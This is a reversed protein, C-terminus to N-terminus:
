FGFAATAPTAVNAPQRTSTAFVYVNVAASPENVDATLEDNVFAIPAADRSANVVSGEPATPPEANVVCGTTVTCSAPPLVTVVFVDATVSAIVVGAPAVRPQAVFGFFAMAPTAVNEPHLM